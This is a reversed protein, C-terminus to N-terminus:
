GDIRGGQIIIGAKTVNISPITGIIHITDGARALSMARNFTKCVSTVSCNNTDNGTASVYYSAPVLNPVPMSSAAVNLSGALIMALTMGAKFIQPLYIKNKM